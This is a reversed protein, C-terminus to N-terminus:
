IKYAVSVSDKSLVRTSISYGIGKGNMFLNGRLQKCIHQALRRTEPKVDFRIKKVSDRIDGRSGSATLTGHM